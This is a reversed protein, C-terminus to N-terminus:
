PSVCKAEPSYLGFDPPLFFDDLRRIFGDFIADSMRDRCETDYVEEHDKGVLGLRDLLKKLLVDM